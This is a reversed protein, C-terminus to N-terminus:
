NGIKLNPINWMDMTEGFTEYMASLGAKQAQTMPMAFVLAILLVVVISISITRRM